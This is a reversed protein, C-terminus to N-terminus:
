AARKARGRKQERAARDRWKQADPQYGLAAAKWEDADMNASKLDSKLADIEFTANALDTIAAKYKAEWDTAPPTPSNFGLKTLLSKM